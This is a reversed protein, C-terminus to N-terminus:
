RRTTTRASGSSTGSSGTYATQPAGKLYQGSLPDNLFAAFRSLKQHVGGLAGGITSKVVKGPVASAAHITSRIYPHLKNYQQVGGPWKRKIWMNVKHASLPAAPNDTIDDLAGGPNLGSLLGSATNYVRDTDARSSGSPALFGWIESIPIRNGPIDRLTVKM